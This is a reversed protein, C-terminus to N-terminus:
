YRKSLSQALYTLLTFERLLAKGLKRIEMSIGYPTQLPTLHVNAQQCDSLEEFNKAAFGGIADFCDV